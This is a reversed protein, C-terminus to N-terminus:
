NEYRKLLWARIMEIQPRDKGQIPELSLEYTERWGGGAWMFWDLCSADSMALFKQLALLWRSDNMPVGVEGIVGRQKHTALWTLFPQLRQAAREVLDASGIPTKYRGSFDDDFYIHAEYVIRNSPDTVFPTPNLVPWRQSNSWGDGGVYILHLKDFSRVGDVGYQATKHWLGLTDHPENMLGYAYVAPHKAFARVLRAWIDKFAEVPVDETGVLKNRYRGYNHLDIVVKMGAANALDLFELAHSVYRPNLEGYLTPQMMEWTISMRIANMGVGKYYDIQAVSPFRMEVAGNHWGSPLPVLNVGRLPFSCAAFVQAGPMLLLIGLVLVIRQFHMQM